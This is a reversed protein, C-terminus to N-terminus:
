FELPSKAIIETLDSSTFIGILEGEPGAVLLRKINLDAMIRAAERVNFEPEVTIVDLAGDLDGLSNCSLVVVISQADVEITRKGVPSVNSQLNDFMQGIQDKLNKM